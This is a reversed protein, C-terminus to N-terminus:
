GISRPPKRVAGTGGMRNGSSGGGGNGGGGGAACDTAFDDEDWDACLFDHGAAGGYFEGSDGYGGAEGYTDM